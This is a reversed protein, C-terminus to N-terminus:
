LHLNLWLWFGYGLGYAAIGFMIGAISRNIIRLTRPKFHNRVRNIIWTILTWWGVAGATLASFGLVYLWWESASAEFLFNSRAFLFLYIFVISPNSITLGFGSFFYKLFGRTRLRSRPTMRDNTTLASAPNYNWLYVAYAAIASSGVMQLTIQYSQIWDVVLSIFFTSLVAYFLDSFVAGMGTLYGPLWGRNLTRQIVLIGSPGMPASVLVGILLGWLVTMIAASIM